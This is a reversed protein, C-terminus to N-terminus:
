HLRPSLAVSTELGKTTSKFPLAQCSTWFGFTKEGLQKEILAEIGM